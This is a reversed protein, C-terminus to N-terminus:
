ETGDCPFKIRARGPTECGQGGFNEKLEPMKRQTLAESKSPAPSASVLQTGCGYGIPYGNRQGLPPERRSGFLIQPTLCKAFRGIARGQCAVM